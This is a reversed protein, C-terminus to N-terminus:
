EGKIYATTASSSSQVEVLYDTCGKPIQYLYQGNYTETKISSTKLLNSGTLIWTKGGYSLIKGDTGRLRLTMSSLNRSGYSEKIPTMDVSYDIVCWECGDTLKSTVNAGSAKIATEADAGRLIKNIRIPTDVYKGDSYSSATTWEGIKAPSAVSSPKSDVKATTTTDPDTTNNEARNSISNLENGVENLGNGITNFVDGLTNKGTSWIDNWTSQTNSNFFYNTANDVHAGFWGLAGYIVNLLIMVVVTPIAALISLVLGAIAQGKGSKKVIGIIGFIFALITCVINIYPIWCLLLAVIGLVLAAVGFGSGGQPQTQQYQPQQYNDQPVQYQQYQTQEPQPAQYQQYQGQTNDQVPQEANMPEMPQMPEMPNQNNEDM